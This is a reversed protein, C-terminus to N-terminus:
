LGCLICTDEGIGWRPKDIGLQDALQQLVPVPACRSMLMELNVRRANLVRPTSTHIELGDWVPYNCATVIKSWGKGDRAEVACVRCAAYPTMYPYHCLTPIYLGLSRAGDLVFAGEDMEMPHGDIKVNVKGM